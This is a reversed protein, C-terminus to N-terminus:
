KQKKELEKGKIRIKEVKERADQKAQSVEEKLHELRQNADTDHNLKKMAHSQGKKVKKLAKNQSMLKNIIQKNHTLQNELALVNDVDYANNIQQKMWLIEKKMKNVKGQALRLEMEKSQVEEDNDIRQKVAELDNKRDEKMRNYQTEITQVIM